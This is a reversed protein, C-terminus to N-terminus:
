MRKSWTPAPRTDKKWKALGLSLLFLFSFFFFKSIRLLPPWIEAYAIGWKQKHEGQQRPINAQLINAEGGGKGTGGAETLHSYHIKKKKKKMKGKIRIPVLCNTCNKLQVFLHLHRSLYYFHQYFFSLPNQQKLRTNLKRKLLDFTHGPQRGTMTLSLFLLSLNYGFAHCHWAKQIAASSASSNVILTEPQRDESCSWGILVDSIIDLVFIGFLPRWTQGFAVCHFVPVNRVFGAVILLKTCTCQYRSISARILHPLTRGGSHLLRSWTM